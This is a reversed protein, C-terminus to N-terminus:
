QGTAPLPPPRGESANAPAFETAGLHLPAEGETPRLPAQRPLDLIFCTGQGPSSQVRLRGGFLQEVINYSISLGLGTGGRGLKTTFFPEFVRHLLEPAIGQGDDAFELALWGSDTSRARITMVGERSSDEFAHLLANNIFNSLVQGLPGPYADIELGPPIDIEVRHGAKRVVGMMTAVIDTVTLALDFVRRQESTRDVAVQKFSAVLGAATQLGRHILQAAQRADDLYRVLSSRRLANTSMAAEIEDTKNQLTGAMLLSNGIPTNLEHAVGAVLAGLAALKEQAALQKQADGLDSYARANDLAIATYASLTRFVLREMEGYANQLPSQITMVGLVRDGVTLPAFLASLTRMTGPVQSPDSGDPALAVLLERRERLARAANSEEADLRIRHPPLHQGHEVDFVSSMTLGDADILYVAISRADLLAHVHRELVAFVSPADLKTTIEQGIAGLRALTGSTQQAMEARQAEAHALARHHASEARESETMYRLQMALMRGTVDQGHMRERLAGARVAAQYAVEFRGLDANTQAQLDLLEIPPSYHQIGSAATLAQDLHGAAQVLQGADPQQRHRERAIQALVMHAMVQLDGVQAHRADDLGSQAVQQAEDLRSLRMLALARSRRLDMALDRSEARSELANLRELAETYQQQDLALEARYRLSIAYYRSAQLPRLTQEAEDLRQRALDLRGLHRLAEGVQSQCSGVASPWGTPLALDLGRQVWELAADHDNLSTFANGINGAAIIALHLQGSSLALQHCRVYAEIAQAYDSRRFARTARLQQLAAQVYAPGDSAQQLRACIDLEPEQGRLVQLRALVARYYTERAQDGAQRAWEAARRLCQDREAFNGTGTAIGAQVGQLDAALVLSPAGQEPLSALLASAEPLRAQLRLLDAQTLRALWHEQPSLAKGSRESERTAIALCDQAQHSDRERLQWALHICSSTETPLLHLVGQGYWPQLADDTDYLADFEGPM